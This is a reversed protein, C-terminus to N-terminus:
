KMLKIDSVDQEEISQFRFLERVTPFVGSYIERLDKDDVVSFGETIDVHVPEDTICGFFDNIVLVIVCYFKSPINVVPCSRYICWDSASAEM